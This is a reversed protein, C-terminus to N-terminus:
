FGFAKDWAIAVRLDVTQKKKVPEVLIEETFGDTLDLLAEIDVAADVTKAVAGLWIDAQDHEASTVLGLHREEIHLEESRPIAGLVTLDTYRDIAARLKHEQRPGAVRNLVVGAIRIEPDFAIYGSLLPAIGRTMGTVDIVLVVPINLLKALAANSDGGEVDLGDFLGKNGEILVVDAGASQQVFCERIEDRGMTFFDLNWCPQGCALGLWMPDIYDPGKKFTSVKHGRRTLATALGASVVTKGSSRHAASILFRNM